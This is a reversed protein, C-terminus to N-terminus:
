RRSKQCLVMTRFKYCYFLIRNRGVRQHGFIAKGGDRKIHWIIYAFMPSLVILLLGSVVLDFIRKVARAWLRVLNNRVRLMLVEHSFFHSLEMGYLPLGRVPPVIHVNRYRRCLSHTLSQQEEAADVELAIVVHPRGIREILEDPSKELLLVPINVGNLEIHNDPQNTVSSPAIFAVIDFGMLSESSLAAAADRANPGSGIIVTPRKWGGLALLVRKLLVRFVPVLALALIWTSIFWLRSFPWNGLFVLAADMVAVILLIKTTVRLEDWFPRRHSYHGVSWFWTLTALLLVAFLVVRTFGFSGWWTFLQESIPLGHFLWNGIRGLFFASALALFDGGLLLYKETNKFKTKLELSELLDGHAESTAAWEENKQYLEKGLADM